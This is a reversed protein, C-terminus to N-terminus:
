VWIGQLDTGAGKGFPDYDIRGSGHDSGTEQVRWRPLLQDLQGAVPRRRMPQGPTRVRQHQPVIAHVTSRDGRHQQQVVVGDAGPVWGKRDHGAKM